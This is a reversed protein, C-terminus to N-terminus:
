KRCLFINSVDFLSTFQFISLKTRKYILTIFIMESYNQYHQSINVIFRENRQDFCGKNLLSLNSMSVHLHLTWHCEAIGAHM